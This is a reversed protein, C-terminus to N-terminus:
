THTRSKISLNLTIRNNNYLSNMQSIAFKEEGVEEYKLAYYHGTQSIIHAM